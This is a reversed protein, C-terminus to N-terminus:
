ERAPRGLLRLLTVEVHAAQYSSSRVPMRGGRRGRRPLGALPSARTLRAARPPEGVPEAQRERPREPHEEAHDRDRDDHEEGNLPDAVQMRAQDPGVRLDGVGLRAAAAEEVRQEPRQDDAHQRQREGPRDPDADRHPQHLVPPGPQQRSQDLRRDLHEGPCRRDHEGQETQQDELRLDGPKRDAILLPITNPLDHKTAPM